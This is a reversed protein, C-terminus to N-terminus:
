NQVIIACLFNETSRAIACCQHVLSNVTLISQVKSSGVLEGLQLNILDRIIFDIIRYINYIHWEKTGM